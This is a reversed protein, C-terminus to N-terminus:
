QFQERILLEAERFLSSEFIESDLTPVDERAVNEYLRELDKKSLREENDNGDSEDDVSERKIMVEKHNEQKNIEQIINSTNNEMVTSSRPPIEHATSPSFNQQNQPPEVQNGYGRLVEMQQNHHIIQEQHDLHEQVMNEQVECIRAQIELLKCRQSMMSAQYRMMDAEYRLMKSANNSSSPLRPPSIEQNNQIVKTPAANETQHSLFEPSAYYQPRHYFSNDLGSSPLNQSTSSHQIVSSRIPPRLPTLSKSRDQRTGYNIEGLTQILEPPPPLLSLGSPEETTQSSHIITPQTQLEHYISGHIQNDRRQNHTPIGSFQILDPRRHGLHYLQDPSPPDNDNHELLEAAHDFDGNIALEQEEETNRRTTEQSTSTANKQRKTRSRGGDSEPIKGRRKGQLLEIKMGIRLCKAFRCSSCVKNHESVECDKTGTRCVISIKGMREVTRRFFARCSYCCTGGFHIHDPAPAGCVSCAVTLATPARKKTEKNTEM